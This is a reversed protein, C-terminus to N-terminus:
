DCAPRPRGVRGHGKWDLQFGAREDLGGAFVEAQVVLLILNGDLIKLVFSVHRALVNMVQRLFM